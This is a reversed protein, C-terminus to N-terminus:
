QLLKSALDVQVTVRGEEKGEAPSGYQPFGRM